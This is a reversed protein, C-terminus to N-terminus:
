VHSRAQTMAPGAPPDQARRPDRARGRALCRRGRGAPVLRAAAAGRDSGGGLGASGVVPSSDALAYLRVDRPLARLGWAPAGRRSAPVRVSGVTGRRPRRGGGPRWRRSVPAHLLPGTPDFRDVGRTQIEDFAHRLAEAVSVFYIWWLGAVLAFALGVTLITPADLTHANAPGLGISVISEGLAIILFLGFREPLHTQDFRLQSLTPRFVAPAALDLLAAVSWISLRWPPPLLSGVLLLPGSVVAAVVMPGMFFPRSRYFLLALLVRAGIYATAFVVGGDGYAEPLALAMILGGLGLGLIGVRDVTNEIDRTNAHVTTGVWLWYVPVFVVAGRLVAMATHDARVLATVETIAFIFVLDFFLEVASVRKGQIPEDVPVLTSSRYQRARRRGSSRSTPM